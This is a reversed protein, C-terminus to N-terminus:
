NTKTSAVIQGSKDTLRPSGASRMADNTTKNLAVNAGGDACDHAHPKVGSDTNVSQVDGHAVVPTRPQATHLKTKIEETSPDHRAEGRYTGLDRGAIFRGTGTHRNTM